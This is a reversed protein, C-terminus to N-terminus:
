RHKPFTDHEPTGHESSSRSYDHVKLPRGCGDKLGSPLNVACDGTPNAAEGGVRHHNATLDNPAFDPGIAISADAAYGTHCLSM